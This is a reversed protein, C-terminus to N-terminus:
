PRWGRRRGYAWANWCIEWRREDQGLDRTNEPVAYAGDPQKVAGCTCFADVMWCGRGPIGLPPGYPNRWGRCDEEHRVWITGDANAM